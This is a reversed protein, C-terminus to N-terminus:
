ISKDIDGTLVECGGNVVCITDEVRLGGYGPIYIGPEVTFVMGEKLLDKNSGSITPREHIELGIGHGTNHGFFKGVGKGAIHQRAANDVDFIKVGPRICEIARKQAELLIDYLKSFKSSIKGLPCMRTLDSNYGELKAGMDILIARNKGLKKPRPVYHPQSASPQTAVIPEFSSGDAGKKIFAERIYESVARETINSRLRRKVSKFTATTIELAKKLALIEGREKIERLSEVIDDKAIVRKGRLAKKIKKFRHLSLSLSEIGLNKIRHKELARAITKEFTEKGKSVFIDIGRLSKSASEEYIFDTIVFCKKPSIVLAIKDASFSTLYFINEPKTILLADLNHKHLKEILADIRDRHM